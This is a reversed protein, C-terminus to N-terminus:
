EAYYFCFAADRAVAIRTRHPQLTRAIAVAPEPVAAQAAVELVKDLDAHKELLSALRDMYGGPIDRDGPMHLGLHREKLVVADDKCVCCCLKLDGCKIIFANLHVFCRSAGSIM